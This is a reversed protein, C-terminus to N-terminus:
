TRHSEREPWMMPLVTASYLRLPRRNLGRKGRNTLTSPSSGALNTPEAPLDAPRAGNLINDMFSAARQWENVINPGYSILGGAELNPWLGLMSALRYRAELEAIHARHQVLSSVPV